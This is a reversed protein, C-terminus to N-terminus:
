RSNGMNYLLSPVIKDMHVPEWIDVQLDDAVTKRVVGQLGRLGASQIRYYCCFMPYILIIEMFLLNYCLVYKKIYNNVKFYIVINHLSPLKKETLCQM